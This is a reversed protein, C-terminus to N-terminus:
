APVQVVPILDGQRHVIRWQGDELRCVTTVRLTTPRAPEGDMSVTSSEIAVTYALEGQAVAVSVDNRYDTANSLRSSAKHLTARVQEQGYTVYGFGGMISVPEATSWLALYPEPDGNVFQAHAADHKPVFESRFNENM